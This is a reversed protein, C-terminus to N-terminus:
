DSKSQNKFLKLGFILKLLKLLNHEPGAIVNIRTKIIFIIKLVRVYKKQIYNIWLNISYFFLVLLIIYYICRINSLVVKGFSVETFAATILRYEWCLQLWGFYLYKLFILFYRLRLLYAGEEDRRRGIEREGRESKARKAWDCKEWKWARWICIKWTSVGM